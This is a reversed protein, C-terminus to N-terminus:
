PKEIVKMFASITGHDPTVRGILWMVEINRTAEMEIRRSSRIRNMYCYIYLKLLHKRKFPKQGAKNGSYTKFGM